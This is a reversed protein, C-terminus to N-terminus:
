VRIDYSTPRAGPGACESNGSRNRRAKTLFRWSHNKVAAIIDFQESSIAKGMIEFDAPVHYLNIELGAVGM